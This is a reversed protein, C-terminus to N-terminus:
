KIIVCPVVLYISMVSLARSDSAKLLRTRVLTFGCAMILFLSVIQQLLLLAM